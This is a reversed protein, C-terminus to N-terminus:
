MRRQERHRAAAAVLAVLGAGTWLLTATAWEGVNPLARWVVVRDGTTLTAGVQLSETRATLLADIGYPGYVLATLMRDLGSPGLDALDAVVFAVVFFGVLVTAVSRLPHRAGLVLASAFVYTGTAATFPVLWLLPQPTWRVHHIAGPEFVVGYSFSTLVPRTEDTFPTAGSALTVALLWLALLAVGGMLWVWGALVKILGHGFRDVPLTWLFGAGFRDEDKWVAIPLLAGLLGPMVYHEPHFTLV